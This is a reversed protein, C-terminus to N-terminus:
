PTALLTRIWVDAVLAAYDEPSRGRSAVLLYYEPGNMSWVLDAVEDDSLDTRLEGTARLDAALLRMNAARREVLSQWVERCAPDTLAAVRLADSLPIARPLLRGLAGAYTKLKARAGVAERVAQVYARQESPVPSGEGLVLDHAGLLLQPKRGVSAYLTDVSVGAREAVQAVATDAYGHEGFVDAAARLIRSRTQEARESRVSSRYSRGKVPEPM